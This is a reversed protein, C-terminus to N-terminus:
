PGTVVVGVAQCVPRGPTGTLSVQYSGGGASPCAFELRTTDGFDTNEVECPATADPDVVLVNAPQWTPYWIEVMHLTTGPDPSDAVAAGDVIQRWDGGATTRVSLPFAQGAITVEYSAAPGDAYGRGAVSSLVAYEQGYDTPMAPAEITVNLSAGGALTGSAPTVDFGPAGGVQVIEFAVAGAGDNVLTVGQPLPTEGCGATPFEVEGPFMAVDIDDVGAIHLTTRDPLPACLPVDLDVFPEFEVVHEGVV